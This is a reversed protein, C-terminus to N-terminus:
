EGVTVVDGTEVAENVALTTEFTKRADAYPSRPGSPDGAAVDEVFAELELRHADANHEEDVDEDDVAGTITNARFDLDLHFGDGVLTLTNDGRPSASSNAVHSVMDSDHTMTASVADPFDIEELRVRHSGAARVTEVDGGFYRVLDYTHTAQEVVQGGSQDYRRWWAAGPVGGLWRGDAYALTRDGILEKAREVIPAYRNMHGVQVVLDTGELMAEIERPNESAVGLPKEVLMHTDHEIALQEQGQHAFPPVAIVVADFSREEFMAEEDTYVAADHASAGERAADEDIDSVAVVDAGDITELNGLHKSAIGGAGIFALEVSM